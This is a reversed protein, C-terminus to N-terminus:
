PKYKRFHLKWLIGAKLMFEASNYELGNERNAPIFGYRGGFGTHIFFYKGLLLGINYNLECALAYNAASDTLQVGNYVNVDAYNLWNNTTYSVSEANTASFGSPTLLIFSLGTVVFASHFGEAYQYDAGVNYNFPIFNMPKSFYIEGGLSKSIDSEFLNNSIIETGHTARASIFQAQLNFCQPLILLLLSIRM